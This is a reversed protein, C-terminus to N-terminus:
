LGLENLKNEREISKNRKNWLEIIEDPTEMYWGAGQQLYCEENKCRVDYYQVLKGNKFCYDSQDDITFLEAPSNCFPCNKIQLDM